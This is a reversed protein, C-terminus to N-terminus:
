EGGFLGHGIVGSASVLGLKTIYEIWEDMTLNDPKLAAIEDMLAVQRENMGGIKKPMVPKAGTRMSEMINQEEFLKNREAEGKEKAVKIVDRDAKTLVSSKGGYNQKIVTSFVILDKGAPMRIGKLDQVDSIFHISEGNTKILTQVNVGGLEHASSKYSDGHWIGDKTVEFKIKSEKSPVNPNKVRIEFINGNDWIAKKGDKIPLEKLFAQKMQLIAKESATQGKRQIRKTGKFSKYKDFVMRMLTDNHSRQGIENRLDGSATSPYTKRVAMLAEGKPFEKGWAAKALDYAKARISASVDTTERTEFKSIEIFNKKNLPIIEGHFKEPQLKKALIPSPRDQMVNHLHQQTAQGEWIKGQKSLEKSTKIIAKKGGIEELQNVLKLVAAREVNILDEKIQEPQNDWKVEYLKKQESKNPTRNGELVKLYNRHQTINYSLRRKLAVKARDSLGKESRLKNGVNRAVKQTRHSIGLDRRLKLVKPNVQEIIMSYLTKAAGTVLSADHQTKTGYFGTFDNVLNAAVSQALPKAVRTNLAKSFLPAVVKGAVASVLPGLAM